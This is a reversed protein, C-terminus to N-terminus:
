ARKDYFVVRGYPEHRSMNKKETLLFLADTKVTKSIEFYGDSLVLLVTKEMYGGNKDVYEFVANINTGGDSKPIKLSEKDVPTFADFELILDERVVSDFPIVKADYEFFNEGIEAIIGLFKRYELLEISASMDLAILLNIREKIKSNSPLYLGKHIHRRNPERFSSTKEFFSLTLFEELIERVDIKVDLASQADKYFSSPIVGSNKAINLAQIILADLEGEFEGGEGVSDEKLDILDDSNEFELPSVSNEEYLAEYIEEVSKGFFREDFPEKEGREGVNKFETLLLNIAIDSALNWVNKERAKIRFAHKLVVHLLVHVYLYKIQPPTYLPIKDENIFIAKGNTSFLSGEGEGAVYSTPLSLALVSLFPHEFLFEVRIKSFLEEQM